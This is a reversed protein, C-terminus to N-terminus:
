LDRGREQLFEVFATHAVHRAQQSNFDAIMKVAKSVGEPINVTVPKGDVPAAYFERAVGSNRSAFDALVLTVLDGLTGKTELSIAELSDIM